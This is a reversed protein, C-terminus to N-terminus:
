SRRGAWTGGDDRSHRYGWRGTFAEGDDSATLSGKGTTGGWTWDFYLTEGRVLGELTGAGLGFDFYGSVREGRRVFVVRMPLSESELQVTRVSDGVYRGHFAPGDPGGDDGTFLRLTEVNRGRAALIAGREVDPDELYGALKALDQGLSRVLGADAPDSAFGHASEAVRGALARLRLPTLPHERTALHANWASESEFDWRNLSWHASAQFFLVMGMPVTGTRRMLELAFRDANAEANGSSGAARASCHAYAHGLEHALIFARGSNFFRLSLADVDPDQFANEPIRLARLPPVRPAEPPAYKLIGVYDAVAELSERQKWLWAYAVSLDDLFQLSQIPMSITSTPCESVAYFLLPDGKRDGGDRLDDGGYLPFSLRVGRLARKEEETLYGRFVDFIANTSVPYRRHGYSLAARDYFTPEAQAWSLSPALALLVGLRKV